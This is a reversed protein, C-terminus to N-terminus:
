IRDETENGHIEKLKLWKSLHTVIKSTLTTETAQVIIPALKSTLNLGEELVNRVDQFEEWSLAM